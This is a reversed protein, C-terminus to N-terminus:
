LRRRLARVTQRLVLAMFGPDHLSRRVLPMVARDRVASSFFAADDLKGLGQARARLLRVLEPDGAIREDRSLALAADRLANYAVNTRSLGSARRSIAGQRQTYLYLPLPLLRFRAGALLLDVVLRFDEGHRIAPDYCVGHAGLMDRRFIPKLLGWDFGKGDAPNHAFYDRLSVPRDLIHSDGLGAGTVREAAADYYAIDDAVLDAGTRVAFPILAELRGPEFADDADLVAVWESSAAAIATNRAASPGGNRPMTLLRLRPETRAVQEVVARTGDTSCDDVVIIEAAPLTQSLASGIARSVFSEANFTPIIIAVSPRDTM